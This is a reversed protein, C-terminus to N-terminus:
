PKKAEAPSDAAPEPEAAPLQLQSNWRNAKRLLTELGNLRFGQASARLACLQAKEYKGLKFYMLGINYQMNADDHLEADAQDLNNLAEANRGRNTLYIGYMVRVVPDDPVTKLARVYWCELPYQTNQPRESKLRTGLREMAMLAEPHNPFSNLVYQFGKGVELGSSGYTDATLKGALFAAYENEFHYKEVIGKDSPHASRYDFPGYHGSYAGCQRELVKPTVDAPLARPSLIPSKQALAPTACILALLAINLHRLVRQTRRISHPAHRTPM